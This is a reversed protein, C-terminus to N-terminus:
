LTWFMSLKDKPGFLGKPQEFTVAVTKLKKSSDKEFLDNESMEFKESLDLELEPLNHEIKKALKVVDPHFHQQLTKVEWLCSELARCKAPDSEMPDYPDKDYGTEMDVRNVLQKCTPHRIILNYILSLSILLGSPPASLSIRALRKAFAAVLYAPLHTSSLFLDSLYFFRAKYKVHFVSSEFLAYLKTYFDPYHLNYKQILIFLGNLALLSIAGGVDYSQTLFDCLILPSTLNPMVKDHLIQLVRRYMTASLKCNLFELWTSSYLRKHESVSVMKQANEPHTCYFNTFSESKSISPISINELLVFMNGLMMESTEGKPLRRCTSWAIKLIYYRLDDYEIFEQFRNLLAQNNVRDSLLTTLINKFLNFPFSSQKESASKLSHKSEKAVFKMLVSLAFEQVNSSNHLLLELLREVADKYRDRLWAKYKREKADDCSKGDLLMEGIELYNSFLKHVSRISALVFAEDDDQLKAIIDILDNAYKRSSLCNNTKEKIDALISKRTSKNM